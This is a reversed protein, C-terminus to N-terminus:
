CLYISYKFVIIHINLCSSTFFICNQLFTLCTFLPSSVLFMSVFLFSICDCVSSIELESLLSLPGLSNLVCLFYQIYSCCTVQMFCKLSNSCSFSYYPRYLTLFSSLAIFLLLQSSGHEVACRFTKSCSLLVNINNRNHKATLM